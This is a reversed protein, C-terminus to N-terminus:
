LTLELIPTGDSKTIQVRSIDSRRVATGGTYAITKDPALKWSGAAYHHGHKDVVVLAYPAYREDDDAYRCRLKIETGWSRSVLQATATVPNPRVASFALPGSSSPASSPWLTVVLAIACAAALGALSGVFVRRRRREQAAKRLLGPLLTDPMPAVDAVDAATLGSLLNVTARAEDVSARCDPCDALHAEFAQRDARDLAGLVYAADHHQFADNTVV